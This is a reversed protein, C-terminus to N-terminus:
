NITRQSDTNFGPHLYICPMDELQSPQSISIKLYRFGGNKEGFNDKNAGSLRIQVVHGLSFCGSIAAARKYGKELLLCVWVHEPLFLSSTQRQCRGAIHHESFCRRQLAHSTEGIWAARELFVGGVPEAEELVWQHWGPSQWGLSATGSGGSPSGAHDVHCPSAQGIAWGHQCLSLAGQPIQRHRKEFIHVELPTPCCHLLQPLCQWELFTKKPSGSTVCYKQVGIEWRQFSFLIKRPQSTHQLTVSSCNRLTQIGCRPLFPLVSGCKILNVNGKCGYTHPMRQAM